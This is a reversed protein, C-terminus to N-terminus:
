VNFWAFVRILRTLGLEIELITRTGPEILSQTFAAQLSGMDAMLVYTTTM